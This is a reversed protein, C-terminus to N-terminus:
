RVKHIATDFCSSGVQLGADLKKAGTNACAAVNAVMRRVRNRSPLSLLLAECTAACAGRWSRLVKLM